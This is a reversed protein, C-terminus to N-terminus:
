SILAQRCFVLARSDEEAGLRVQREVLDLLEQDGIGIDLFNSILKVCM